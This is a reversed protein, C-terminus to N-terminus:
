PWAMHLLITCMWVAVSSILRPFFSLYISSSLLFWMAFIYHGARNWLAAMILPRSQRDATIIITVSHQNWRRVMLDILSRTVNVDEVSTREYGDGEKKVGVGCLSFDISGHNNHIRSLQVASIRKAQYRSSCCPTVVRHLGRRLCDSLHYPRMGCRWVTKGVVRSAIARVTQMSRRTTSEHKRRTLTKLQACSAVTTYHLGTWRLIVGQWRWNTAEM